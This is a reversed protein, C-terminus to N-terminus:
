VGVRRLLEQWHYAAIRDSTNCTAQASSRWQCSACREIDVTARQLPCYIASATANPM